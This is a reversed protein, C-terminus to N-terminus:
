VEYWLSDALNLTWQKFFKPYKTSTIEKGERIKGKWKEITSTPIGIKKSLQDNTLGQRNSVTGEGTVSEISDTEGPVPGISGTVLEDILSIPEVTDATEVNEQNPLPSNGSEDVSEDIETVAEVTNIATEVTYVTEVTAVTGMDPNEGQRDKQSDTDISDIESDIRQSDLQSALANLRHELSIMRNTLGQDCDNLRDDFAEVWDNLKKAISGVREDIKQTDTELKDIRNSDIQNDIKDIRNGKGTVLKIDIRGDLCQNIFDYLLSATDTNHSKALDGFAQRKDGEIRITILKDRAM